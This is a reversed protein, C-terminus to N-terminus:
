QLTKTSVKYPEIGLDRLLREAHKSKTRLWREYVRLIDKSSTLRSRESVETLVDVFASFKSALELFLSALATNDEKHIAAVYSYSSAGMAMYYDLDVTKRKLSDSFFGSTFLSLDGLQRMQRLQAARGAGLAKIYTIALPEPSLRESLIFNALLSSLYFEALENTNVKQRKIATGVLDKFHEIPKIDTLM